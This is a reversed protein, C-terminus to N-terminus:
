KKNLMLREHTDIIVKASVVNIPNTGYEWAKLASSSVGIEHAFKEQSLGTEARLEKLTEKKM